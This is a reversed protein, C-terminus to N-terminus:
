KKTEEFRRVTGTVRRNSVEECLTRDAGGISGEDQGSWFGWFLKVCDKSLGRDDIMPLCSTSISWLGCTSLSAEARAASFDFAVNAPPPLSVIAVFLVLALVGAAMSDDFLEVGSVLGTVTRKSGSPLPLM